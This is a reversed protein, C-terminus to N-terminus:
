TRADVEQKLAEVKAALATIRRATKPDARRAAVDLSTAAANLYGAVAEPESAHAAKPRRYTRGAAAAVIQQASELDRLARDREGPEMATLELREAENM